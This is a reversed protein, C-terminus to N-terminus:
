RCGGLHGEDPSVRQFREGVLRYRITEPEPRLCRSFRSDIDREQVILRYEDRERGIQIAEVRRGVRRPPAHGHEASDSWRQLLSQTHLVAPKAPHRLSILTLWQEQREGGDARESLGRRGRSPQASDSADPAQQVQGAVLLVPWKCHSAPVEIQSSLWAPEVRGVHTTAPQELDVLALAAIHTVAQGLRVAAMCQGQPCSFYSVAVPFTYGAAGDRVRGLVVGHLTGQRPLDYGKADVIDAEERGLATALNRRHQSLPAHALLPWLQPPPEARSGAATLSLALVSAAVAGRRAARGQTRSRGESEVSAGLTKPQKM